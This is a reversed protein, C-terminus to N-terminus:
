SEPMIVTPTANAVFLMGDYMTAPTQFIRYSPPLLRMYWAFGEGLSGMYCYGSIQAFLPSADPVKSFDLWCTAFGAKKVANALPNHSYFTHNVRKGNSTNPINCVTKYFDTGIAYYGDGLQDDLLKGMADYSGYKAIHGNHGSVFIREHGRAAEQQAIWLVNEAMMKDRLLIYDGNASVDTQLGGQLELYQLLMDAFHVSQAADEKELLEARIQTLIDARVAPEYADSWDNGAVLKELATTDISFAKCDEVLFSFSAACRQMDFGYFRLDEGPKATENYQRMYSILDAMEQTRYIDFGIADAAESATGEAGHIYRNVRECGGYDGELAFARVGFREVMETFVTLKLQQFEANGHTAEGLAIIRASSPVAIDAPTGAYVALEAPDASEGVGFGGFYTFVLIIFVCIALLSLLVIRLKSHKQGNRKM